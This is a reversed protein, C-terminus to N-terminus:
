MDLEKLQLLEVSSLMIGKVGRSSAPLPGYTWFYLPLKSPISLVSNCPTLQGSTLMNIVRAVRGGHWDFKKKETAWPSVSAGWFHTRRLRHM